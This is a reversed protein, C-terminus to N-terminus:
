CLALQNARRNKGKESNTHITKEVSTKEILNGNLSYAYNETYSIEDPYDATIDAALTNTNSVQKNYGAKNYTYAINQSVSACSEDCRTSM